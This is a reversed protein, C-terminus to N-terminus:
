SRISEGDSGNPDHLSGNNQQVDRDLLHLEDDTSVATENPINNDYQYVAECIRYEEAFEMIKSIDMGAIEEETPDRTALTTARHNSFAPCETIFHFFTERSNDCYRCGPNHGPAMLSMHYNLVNHGTLLRVMKGLQLRSLTYLDKSKRQSRTPFFQKTQRASKYSGWEQEWSDYAHERIKNKVVKYPQPMKIQNSQECGKKALKDAMENGKYGVHAKIWVLTIKVGLNGAQNLEKIADLTMLSTITEAEMAQLAPQSDVFIKVFEIGLRHKNKLIFTAAETIARTEAQFVTAYQPLNKSIEM